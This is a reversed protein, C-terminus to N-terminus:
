KGNQLEVVAGTEIVDTPTFDRPTLKEFHAIAQLIEAAQRSQGRALYAAELGRTDYKHEAKSQEHTAEARAAGAAKEYLALDERLKEIVAVVLERKNVARLIGDAWVIDFLNRKKHNRSSDLSLNEILFVKMASSRPILTVPDFVM